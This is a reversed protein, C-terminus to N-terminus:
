LCAACSHCIELFLLAHVSLCEGNYVMQPSPFTWTGNVGGKPIGSVTRDTNLQKRQGPCPLQNPELPMNNCPDLVSAGKLAELAPDRNRSSPDSNIVQGYVNYVPRSPNNLVPCEERGSTSTNGPGQDQLVPQPQSPEPGAGQKSWTSNGM